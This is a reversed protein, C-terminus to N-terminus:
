WSVIGGGWRQFEKVSRPKTQMFHMKNEYFLFTYAHKFLPWGKNGLCVSWFREAPFLFFTRCAVAGQFM